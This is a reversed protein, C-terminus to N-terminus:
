FGAINDLLVLRGVIALEKEDLMQQYQALLYRREVVVEADDLDFEVKALEFVGGKDEHVLLSFHEM